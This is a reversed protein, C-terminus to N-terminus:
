GKIRREARGSQEAFFWSGQVRLWEGKVMFWGNVRLGESPEAAKSQLSGHVSERRGWQPWFLFRAFQWIGKVIEKIM